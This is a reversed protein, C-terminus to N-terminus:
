SESREEIMQVRRAHRGNGYQPDFEHALWVDVIELALSEGLVREGLCLVNANNHLISSKASFTDSCLAARVGKFRNAMICVGIGTGCVIIGRDAKNNVILESVYEAALPYDFDESTHTGVDIVDYGGAELKEKIKQKYCFGAHDAGIAIKLKGMNLTRKKDKLGM